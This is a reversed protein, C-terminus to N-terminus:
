SKGNRRFKCRQNCDCGSRTQYTNEVNVTIEDGDYTDAQVNGYKLFMADAATVDDYPMAKDYALAHVQFTYVEGEPALYVNNHVFDDDDMLIGVNITVTFVGSDEATETIDGIIAGEPLSTLLKVSAYTKRAATPTITFTVVPPKVKTPSDDETDYKDVLGGVTYTGDGNDMFVPNVADISTAVVNTPGLPAVDDDNDVSFMASVGEVSREVSDIAVAIARVM